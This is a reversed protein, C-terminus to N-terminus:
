EWVNAFSIKIIKEMIDWNLTPVEDYPTHYEERHGPKFRMVPVGASVFSRHASGGPPDDSSEYIVDLEIGYKKLNGETLEKFGTCSSTYTMTAENPKDDSVYRSIMDLNVNLRLNKLPYTLNDVYYRSGLLGKEEATWLAFVITKEPKSGSEMIARAVTLVGVTGSANDDAGHWVYGNAMGEHDYHAGLVIVQDPDNGEVVGIVNRVQVATTSVVSRIYITKATMAPIAGPKTSEAKKVYDDILIGTGKLIHDAAKASVTIRIMDESSTKGPISYRSFPMGTRQRRESPSMNLFDPLPQYGVITTGPNFEIVGAIGMSRLMNETERSSASLEDATLTERAFGPFGSIKLVFKGRVDINSFDNYKLKDNKFGYGAFVVPAEIDIDQYSSRVLFDINREFSVTKITGGEITKVRLIQEEGPTTKLLTFNQFYTRQESVQAQGVGRVRPYDGGPRGGYLQLMSAIYDGALYEGREGAERGETWDSALFNLQAKISDPTISKLGKEIPTEQGYGSLFVLLGYILLGIRKM